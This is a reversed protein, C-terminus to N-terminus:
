VHQILDKIQNFTARKSGNTDIIFDAKKRRISDSVQKSVMANFKDQTMGKRLLV